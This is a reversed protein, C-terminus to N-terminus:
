GFADFDPEYDGGGDGYYGTIAVIGLVTMILLPVAAVEWFGPRKVTSSHNESM